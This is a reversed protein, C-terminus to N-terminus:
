KTIRLINNDIVGLNLTRNRDPKMIEKIISDQQAKLAKIVANKLLKIEEYSGCLHKWDDMFQELIEKNM